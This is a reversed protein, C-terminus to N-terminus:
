KLNSQVKVFQITEDSKDHKFDVIIDSEAVGLTALSLKVDRILRNLTEKNNARTAATIIIQNAYTQKYHNSIDKLHTLANDDLQDFSQDFSIFRIQDIQHKKLIEYKKVAAEVKENHDKKSNFYEPVEMYKKVVEGRENVEVLIAKGEIVVITMRDETAISLPTSGPNGSLFLLFILNFIFM